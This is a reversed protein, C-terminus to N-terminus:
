IKKHQQLFYTFFEVGEREKFRIDPDAGSDHLTHIHCLKVMHCHNRQELRIAFAIIRHQYQLTYNYTKFYLQQM